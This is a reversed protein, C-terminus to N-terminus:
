GGLKGFVSRRAWLFEGADRATGAFMGYAATRFPPLEFTFSLRVCDVSDYFFLPVGNWLAPAKLM